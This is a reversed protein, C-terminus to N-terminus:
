ELFFYERAVDVVKPDIEVVDVSLNPYNDLFYKPGSFGGGGIFLINIVNDNLLLGIPFFRTYDSVLSNPDSKDM